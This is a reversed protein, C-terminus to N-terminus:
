GVTDTIDAVGTFLSLTLLGFTAAIALALPWTRRWRSHQTETRASAALAPVHSVRRLPLAPTTM